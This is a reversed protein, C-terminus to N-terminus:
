AAHIQNWRYEELERWTRSLFHNWALSDEGMLPLGAEAVETRIALRAGPLDILDIRTENVKLKDALQRRLTENKGLWDFWEIGAKWQIAIDWDSEANARGEAQSGILIALELDPESSFVQRLLAIAEDRSAILPAKM